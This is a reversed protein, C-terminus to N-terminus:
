ILGKSKLMELERKTIGVPGYSECEKRMKYNWRPKQVYFIEDDVDFPRNGGYGFDLETFMDPSKKKIAMFKREPQMCRAPHSISFLDQLLPLIYDYKVLMLSLEIRMDQNPYDFLEGVVLKANNDGCLQYMRDVWGGFALCDQEKYIFDCKCSYAYLAANIFSILWGSFKDNSRTNRLHILHGPNHTLNIWQDIGTSPIPDSGCNIVVVKEPNSYELTNPLWYKIYFEEFEDKSKHYGTGIIYGM